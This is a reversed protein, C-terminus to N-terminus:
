ATAVIFIGALTIAGGLLMRSSLQDDLLTVGFLISFVPSLLTLPAVSTVPYRQILYFMASHALLSNILSTFLVASGLGQLQGGAPRTWQGQEFVGSLLLLLPWATM